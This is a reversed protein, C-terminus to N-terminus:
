GGGDPGLALGLELVRDCPRSGAPSAGQPRRLKGEREDQACDCRQKQDSCQGQNGETDERVPDDGTDTNTRDVHGAQVAVLHDRLQLGGVGIKALALDRDRRRDARGRDGVLLGAASGIHFEHGIRRHPDPM